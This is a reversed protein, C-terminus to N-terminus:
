TLTDAGSRSLEGGPVGALERARQKWDTGPDREGLGEILARIEEWQESTPQRSVPGKARRREPEAYVEEGPTANFGALEMVVGVPQRLAKSGAQTQAMSRVAYDDANSWKRESRLCEAEAAAVPRGDLTRAEVRAEWGDDLRRTWVVYPLLGLMSGLLTWG